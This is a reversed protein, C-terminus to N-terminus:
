LLINKKLKPFIELLILLKKLDLDISPIKLLKMAVKNKLNEVNQESQITFYKRFVIWFIRNTLIIFFDDKLTNIIELFSWDENQLSFSSLYPFCEKTIDRSCLIDGRQCYNKCIMIREQQGKRHLGQPKLWLYNVKLPIIKRYNWFSFFQKM